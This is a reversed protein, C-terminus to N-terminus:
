FIQIKPRRYANKCASVFNSIKGQANGRAGAFNNTTAKLFPVQLFLNPSLSSSLPDFFNLQFRAIIKGGALGSNNKSHDCFVIFSFRLLLWDHRGLRLLETMWRGDHSWKGGVPSRTGLIAEGSFTEYFSFPSFCLNEKDGCDYFLEM